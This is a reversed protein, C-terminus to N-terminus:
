HRVPSVPTMTALLRTVSMTAISITQDGIGYPLVLTDGHAFSGCSYIVNPVYGDRRRDNGPSIIPQECRAIMQTPDDLDLLIAGLSYTRMPGVGHTLVLWGESTEIPSGCNGLQLIEWPLEPVQLSSAEPWCRIDDSFAISSSERDSRSLAVYRGNIMRPFLALGKGIAAPGAMPSIQFRHFDTTEILHQAINTGDFATYTAYYTCQDCDDHTFRVFRADEMGVHEAPSNPWFVQESIEETAEFEVSYALRELARMNAITTSSFRRTARDDELSRLRDELEDHSFEDPLADLVFATNERDDDVAALRAHLVARHHRGPGITGVHPYTGPADVEVVGANTIRGTRFGISSRHGEGIGRVSLVFTAEDDPGTDVIVASPNCLAAGEIAIEHTFSAGLLLRRDSSLDADGSVRSEVMDAHGNLMAVLDRHRHDFREMIDAVGRAVDSEALAMVRDIVPAARSDGPGVDERGPVFFRAIVRCPDPRLEIGTDFLLPGSIVAQDDSVLEGGEHECTAHNCSPSRRRPAGASTSEIRMDGM